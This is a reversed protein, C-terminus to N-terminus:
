RHELASSKPFHVSVTRYLVSAVIGSSRAHSMGFCHHLEGQTSTSMLLAEMPAAAATAAAAAATTEPVQQLPM